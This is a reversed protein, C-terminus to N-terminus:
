GKNEEEAAPSADDAPARTEPPQDRERADRIVEEAAANGLREQILRIAAQRESPDAAADFRRELRARETEPSTTLDTTGEGERGPREKDFLHTHVILMDDDAMKKRQRM